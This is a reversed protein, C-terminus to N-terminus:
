QTHLLNMSAVHDFFSKKSIKHRRPPPALALQLLACATRFKDVKATLLMIHTKRLQITSKAIAQDDATYYATHKSLRLNVAHRKERVTIDHQLFYIGTLWDTVNANRSLLAPGMEDISLEDLPLIQSM